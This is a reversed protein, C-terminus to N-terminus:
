VDIDPIEGDNIDDIADDIKDSLEQAEQIAQNSEEIAAQTEQSIESGLDQVVNGLRTNVDPISQKVQDLATQLEAPTGAENLANINSRIDNAIGQMEPTVGYEALQELQSVQQELIDLQVDASQLNLTNTFDAKLGSLADEVSPPLELQENFRDLLEQQNAEIQSQLDEIQGRLEDIESQQPPQGENRQFLKLLGKGMASLKTGIWELAMLAGFVSLFLTVWGSFTKPHFFAYLSGPGDSTDQKTDTGMVKAGNITGSLIPILQNDSAKNSLQSKLVYTAQLCIPPVDLSLSSVFQGQNFYMTTSKNNADVFNITYGGNNDTASAETVGPKRTFVLSGQYTPNATDSGSAATGASYIYYTYSDSYNAWANAFTAVYTSVAMYMNFTVSQYEKTSAFFANMQSDISGTSTSTKLAATMAQQFQQSLTSTPFAMITQYFQQALQMDTLGTAPVSVPPYAPPTAFSQMVSTNMLPFLDTARAIILEYLTNYVTEGGAQTYDNLVVTGSAQGALIDGGATLPLVKLTQAYVQKPNTSTTNYADVILAGVTTNNTITCNKSTDSM